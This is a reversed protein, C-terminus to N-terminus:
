TYMVVFFYVCRGEGCASRTCSPLRMLIHLCLILFLEKILLRRICGIIKGERMDYIYGGELNAEFTSILEELIKARLGRSGRNNEQLIM